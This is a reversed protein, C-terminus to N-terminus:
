CCLRMGEYAMWFWMFGGSGLFILFQILEKESNDQGNHMSSTGIRAISNFLIQKM